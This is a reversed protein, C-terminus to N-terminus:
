GDNVGGFTVTLRDLSEQILSLMGDALVPAGLFLLGITVMMTLPFGFSFINLQPASRTIVGIVLNLLLLVAVVPMLLKFGAMFMAGGAEVGAWLIPGFSLVTGPPLIRYSDMLIRIVELHGDEGLFVALLFLTFIQAVVPTQGGFSPDVQTALGLGATNAIRDGALAAAGFLISLIMGASAGIFLETLFIPAASLTALTMPDPMPVLSMVPLTLVAAAVIRVQVPVYRAGFLPSAILFAGIRLMALMFQMVVGMLTAIELAPIGTATGLDLM